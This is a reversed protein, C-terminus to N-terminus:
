WCWEVQVSIWKVASKIDLIFKPRLMSASFVKRREICKRFFIDLSFGFPLCGFRIPGSVYPATTKTYKESITYSVFVILVVICAMSALRRGIMSSVACTESAISLFFMQFTIFIKHVGRYTLRNSTHIQRQYLVKEQRVPLRNFGAFDTTDQSTRKPHLSRLLNNLAVAVLPFRTFSDGFRPQHL